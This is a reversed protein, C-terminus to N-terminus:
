SALISSFEAASMAGTYLKGDVLFSPTADINWRAEADMARSVIWDRLQTDAVARDFTARDMGSDSAKLWLADTPNGSGYAWSAQSVFLADIFDAYKAAPLYRAVVAARLALGDTPYDYFVWRAKGPGIFKAKLEPLAELSFAACHPCTLSFWEVVTRPARPNGISREAQRADLPAALSFAVSLLTRRAIPM